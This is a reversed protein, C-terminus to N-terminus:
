HNRESPGAGTKIDHEHTRFTYANLHKFVLLKLFSDENDPARYIILLQRCYLLLPLSCALM